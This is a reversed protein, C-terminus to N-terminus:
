FLMSQARSTNAPPFKILNREDFPIGKPNSPFRPLSRALCRIRTIFRPDNMNGNDIARMLPSDGLELEVYPRATGEDAAECDTNINAFHELIGPNSQLLATTSQLDNETAAKCLMQLM